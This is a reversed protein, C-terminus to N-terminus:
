QVKVMHFSNGCGSDCQGAAGVALRLRKEPSLKAKLMFSAVLAGRAVQAGSGVTDFTPETIAWDKAVRYIKRNYGLMCLIKDDDKTAFEKYIDEMAKVLTISLYARDTQSATQIPLKLNDRLIQMTRVTGSCGMVLKGFHFIKHDTIASNLIEGGASFRGDSAIYADKGEMLGVIITM